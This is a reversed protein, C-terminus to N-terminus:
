LWRIINLFGSHGRLRKLPSGRYTAQWLLSPVTLRSFRCGAASRTKGGYDDNQKVLHRAENAEEQPAEVWLADHIMMVIRAKM